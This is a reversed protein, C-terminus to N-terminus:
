CSGTLISMDELKIARAFAIRAWCRCSCQQVRWGRSTPPENPSAMAKNAAMRGIIDCLIVSCDKAQPRCDPHFPQSSEM